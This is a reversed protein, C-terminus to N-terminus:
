SLSAVFRSSGPVGLRGGEGAWIPQFVVWQEPYRRLYGELVAVLRTLNALLDAELRGGWELVLPPEVYVTFRNDKGRVCFAPVVVAGTRRALELAGVPMSTEQGFFPVRLGSGQIDRDAAVAVLGGKPLARLAARLSAVGLPVFALGQSARLGTVLRLLPQPRIPEVPIIVELSPYLRLLAQAVVDINGMHATVLIVGQGRAVGENLYELHHITLRQGLDDARFRALRLLDFYNRAANVFVTKAVTELEPSSIGEGLVPSLNARVARRAGPALFYVLRGLFSAVGYGWASPVRPALKSGLWFAWYRIVVGGGM